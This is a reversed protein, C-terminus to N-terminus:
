AFHENIIESIYEMNRSVDESATSQEETAAAVRQVMDMVRDSSEVIKQLSDGARAANAVSEEALTEGKEMISISTKSEKQISGIKAAIEDTAKATREALKKVEDAVVSFGRGHEGSRAAEIAANLALLNTQDAIDQIVSVIEGIEDLNKGLGEITKSAESVSGALRTISEVTANVIEKGNMATDYSSKTAESAEATNKAMDLITQSMESSADAVQGGKTRQQEAGQLLKKSLNSLGETDASMTEVSVVIKNFADRLNKIMGNLREAMNGMEDKSNVNITHTLDGGAVQEAAEAVIDIPKKVSRVIIIGFAIFFGLVVLSVVVTIRNLKLILRQSDLYDKKVDEKLIDAFRDISKMILPKYDLWADYLDPVKEPDNDFYADLLKGAVKDKFGKYGREFTKEAKSAEESSRYGALSSKVDSWATDINQLAQKLHEGSGIPAVVDAQVGAMRFEIERFFLQIRRLNDLPLVNKNYINELTNIQQRGIITTLLAFSASIIIGTVVVALIKHTIKLNNLSM